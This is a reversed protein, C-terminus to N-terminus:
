KSKFGKEIKAFKSLFYNNVKYVSCAFTFTLWETMDLEKLGCPSYDEMSTQGHFEGPLFIPTPLWESIWPIKEVWPDLGPRVTQAMVSGLLNKFHIANHYEIITLFILKQFM